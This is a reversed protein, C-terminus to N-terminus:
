NNNLLIQAMEIADVTYEKELLDAMDCILYESLYATLDQLKQESDAYLLMENKMLLIKAEANVKDRAFTYLQYYNREGILLINKDNMLAGALWSGDPLQYSALYYKFDYDEALHMKYHELPLYRNLAYGDTLKILELYMVFGYREGSISQWQWSACLASVEEGLENTITRLATIKLTEPLIVSDKRNERCGHIFVHKNTSPACIKEGALEYLLGYDDYRLVNTLMGLMEHVDHSRINLRKIEDTHYLLTHTAQDYLAKEKPALKKQHALKIDLVEKILSYAVLTDIPMMESTDVGIPAAIEELEGRRFDLFITKECTGKKTYYLQAWSQARTKTLYIKSTNEDHNKQKWQEINVIKADM